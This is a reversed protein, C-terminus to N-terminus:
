RLPFFSCFTNGIYKAALWDLETARLPDFQRSIDGPREGAFHALSLLGAFELGAFITALRGSDLIGSVVAPHEQCQPGDSFGGSTMNGVLIDEPGLPGCAIEFARLLRRLQCMRQCFGAM